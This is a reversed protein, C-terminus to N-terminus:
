NKLTLYLRKHQRFKNRALFKYLVTNRDSRDYLGSFQFHENLSEIFNFAEEEWEMDIMEHEHKINIESDENM